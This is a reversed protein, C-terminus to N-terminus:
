KVKEKFMAKTSIGKRHMKRVEWPAMADKDKWLGIKKARAQLELKALVPDTSYKKYHWAYGSRIMETSVDNGNPLIIRAVTRGYHDTKVTKITVFKGFCLDSLYNKAVKSYPMGKEPADIADIRVRIQTENHLITVTDGDAIAIVKGSTIPLVGVSFYIFSLFLLAIFKTKLM